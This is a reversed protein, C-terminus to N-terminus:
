ELESTEVNAETFPKHRIKQYLGNLGRLDDPATRSVTGLTLVHLTKICWMDPIFERFVAVRV